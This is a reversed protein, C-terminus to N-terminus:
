PVCVDAAVFPSASLPTRMSLTDSRHVIRDVGSRQDSVQLSLPNASAGAPAGAAIRKQIATVTDTRNM